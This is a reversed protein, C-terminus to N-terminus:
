EGLSLGQPLLPCHFCGLLHNPPLPNRIDYRPRPGQLGNHRHQNIGTFILRTHVTSQLSCFPTFPFNFGVHQANIDDAHVTILSNCHISCNRIVYRFLCAPPPRHTVDTAQVHPISSELRFKRRRVKRIQHNFM